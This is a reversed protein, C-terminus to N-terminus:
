CRAKTSEHNDKNISRKVLLKDEPAFRERRANTAIIIILTISKQIYEGRRDNTAVIFYHSWMEKLIGVFPVM